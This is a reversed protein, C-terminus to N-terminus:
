NEARQFKRLDYFFPNVQKNAEQYGMKSPVIMKVHGYNTIYKLAILWGPPVDTSQTKGAMAGELFVGAVTTGSEVYRFVDPYTYYMPNNEFGPLVVNFYTTDNTKVDTEVFRVAIENNNRITDGPVGKNVIQMYIGTSTFSVYENATVDTIYGNAKFKEESIVTIGHDKIFTNVADKEEDLMEAYTKSDDCAQFVTGIALLCFFFLLLKKM